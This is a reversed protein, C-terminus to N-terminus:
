NKEERRPAIRQYMFPGVNNYGCKPCEYVPDGLKVASPDTRGRWCIACRVTTGLGAARLACAGVM